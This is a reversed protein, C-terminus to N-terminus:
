KSEYDTFIEPIELNLENWILLLWERKSMSTDSKIHHTYKDSLSYMGSDYDYDVFARYCQLPEFVWATIASNLYIELIFSHDCSAKLQDVILDRREWHDSNVAAIM